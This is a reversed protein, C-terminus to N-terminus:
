PTMEKNAFFELFIPEDAFLYEFKAYPFFKLRIKIADDVPLITKGQLRNEVWESSKGIFDGIDKCTVGNRVMEAKLNPFM